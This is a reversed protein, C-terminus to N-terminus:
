IKDIALLKDPNIIELHTFKDWDIQHGMKPANHNDHMSIFWDKFINFFAVYGFNAILKEGNYVKVQGIGDEFFNDNDDKIFELKKPLKEKHIIM